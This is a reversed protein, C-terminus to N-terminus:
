KSTRYKYTQPTFKEWAILQRLAGNPCCSNYADIAFQAIKKRVEKLNEPNKRQDCADSLKQFEGECLQWFIGLAIQAQPSSKFNLEKYYNETSKRVLEALGSMDGMEKKLNAFWIEGLQSNNFFITSDVFDDKVSSYQEGSTSSFKIGGAWIAITEDEEVEQCVYKLRSLNQCTYGTYDNQLFGLLGTLNRWPQTEPNATLVVIGQKGTTTKYSISPDVGGDKHSTYPIGDSYHVGDNDFLFYKSMPVLRGIFSERLAKATPCDEGTPYKEWPPTGLGSPYCKYGDIEEKSFLNFWLTNWINGGQLFHHLYCTKGIWPGPKGTIAKGSDKTKGSYGASLVVTNDTKKGGLGYGGLVVALLAKDADSLIRERQSIFFAPTNGTSIHPSVVGCSNKEAINISPMQLFPKEGYLYFEQKHKDLYDLCKKAMEVPQLDAWDDITDPTSAAQAIALLLKTMAIKEMANGGLATLEPRTFIDRLSFLGTGAVPVWAEDILNFRNTNSTM